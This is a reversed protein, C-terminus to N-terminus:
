DYQLVPKRHYLYHDLDVLHGFYLSAYEECSTWKQSGVVLAFGIGYVDGVYYSTTSRNGQGGFLEGQVKFSQTLKIERNVLYDRESGTECAVNDIDGHHQHSHGDRFVTYLYIDSGQISLHQFHLTRTTMYGPQAAQCSLQVQNLDELHMALAELNRHHLSPPPTRAVANPQM